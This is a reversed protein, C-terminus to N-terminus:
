RLHCKQSRKLIRYVTARSLNFRKTIAKIDPTKNFEQVVISDFDHPKARVYTNNAKYESRVIAVAHEVKEPVVGSNILVESVRSLIDASM